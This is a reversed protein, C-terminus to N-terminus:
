RETILQEDPSLEPVPDAVSGATADYTIPGSFASVHVFFLEEKWYKISNLLGDCIEVLGHCPSFSVWDENSMPIYFHCFMNITSSVDLTICLLGPNSSYETFGWLAKLPMLLPM